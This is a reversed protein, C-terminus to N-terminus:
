GITLRFIENNFYIIVMMKNINKLQLYFILKKNVTEFFFLRNKKYNYIKKKNNKQTKKKPNLNRKCEVRKM